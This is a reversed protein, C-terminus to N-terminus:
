RAAEVRLAGERFSVVRDATAVRAWSFEGLLEAPTCPEPRERLGICCALAGCLAPASRAIGAARAAGHTKALKGGREELLLLHHRYVPAPLGLLAQLAAQTATSPAIDRGRVVRTVGAAGDDVVVALQYSFAGDRRRVVPDGMALAPEQSLDLGGEDVPRFVGDPLRARIPEASARWGGPPLARGRGRNDYAFGGDPARRGIARVDERTASCPYLAGLAELRDMAAEHHARRTRQTVQEDFDLGLWALDETISRAYEPRCRDPDLDELRLVLRAGRARADLWALLAAALTGLHAPGTTSPAFRCVGGTAGGSM